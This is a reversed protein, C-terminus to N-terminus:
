LTLGGEMHLNARLDSALAELATAMINPQDAADARKGRARHNAALKEIHAIIHQPETM